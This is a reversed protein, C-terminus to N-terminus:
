GVDLGQVIVVGGAGAELAGDAQVDGGLLPFRRLLNFSNILNILNILNISNIPNIPNIPNVIERRLAKTPLKTSSTAKTKSSTRALSEVLM